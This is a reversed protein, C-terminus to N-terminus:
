YAKLYNYLQQAVNGDPGTLICGTVDSQMGGSPLELKISWGIDTPPPGCQFGDRLDKRLEPGDIIRRVDALTITDVTATSPTGFKSMVLQGDPTLRYSSTCDTGPPCPGSGSDLELASWAGGPGYEATSNCASKYLCM